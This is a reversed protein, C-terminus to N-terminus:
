EVRVEELASEVRISLQRGPGVGNMYEDQERLSENLDQKYPLSKLSVYPM